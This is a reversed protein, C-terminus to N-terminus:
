GRRGVARAFRGPSEEDFRFYLEPEILEIEVVYGAIVDVRAYLLDDAPLREAARVWESGAPFVRRTNGGHEEQVLFNGAAPRKQVAHSPEGGLFIFSIEGEALVEPLFPQVLYRVGERLPTSEGRRVRVTEFGGASVEPKVVAEEWPFDLPGGEHLITPIGHEGLTALYSKRANWRVLPVPNDVPVPVADLFAEFADLRRYYDWPTRIVVRDFAALGAPAVLDWPVFMADVGAAALAGILVQDDPTGGVRAADTLMALRM